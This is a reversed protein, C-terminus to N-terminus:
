VMGSQKRLLWELALLFIIGGALYQWNWLEVESSRVIEKATYTKGSAAAGPGASAAIPAFTGGTRYALQELLQRNMKTELFEVNM